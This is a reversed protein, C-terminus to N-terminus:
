PPPPAQRDQVARVVRAALMDIPARADLVLHAHARTPHVHLDYMPRVSSEYRYVIDTRTRGREAADRAVRRQLCEAHELSLFVATHLLKRVEPWYLAYLGEVVVAGRAIVTRRVPSRAHTAYDYIPMQVPVGAVVQRLQDILLAHDLAEPVDVNIAEEPVGRQDRYYADLPFVIGGLVEAVRRAVSSKGSGSPGAIGVVHIVSDPQM